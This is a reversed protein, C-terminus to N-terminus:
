SLFYRAYRVTNGTISSISKEMTKQINLGESKLDSIRAALRYCGYANLAEIPTISEGRLLHARILSIHTLKGDKM